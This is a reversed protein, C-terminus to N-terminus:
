VKMGPKSYSPRNRAKPASPASPSGGGMQIPMSTKAGKHRFEIQDADLVLKGKTKFVMDKQAEFTHGGSAKNSYNGDKDYMDGSGTKHTREIFEKGEETGVRHLNGGPDAHGYTKGYNEKGTFEPIKKDDTASGGHYVGHYQSNDEYESYIKSGVPPIQKTADTTGANNGSGFGGKMQVWPLSEDPWDDHIGRTRVQVLGNEKEHHKVVQSVLKQGKISTQRNLLFSGYTAFM